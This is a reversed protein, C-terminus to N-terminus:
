HSRVTSVRRMGSSGANIVLVDLGGFAQRGGGALKKQAAVDSADSSFVLAQEGLAKSPLRL